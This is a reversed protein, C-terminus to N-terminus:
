PTFAPEGFQTVFIGTGTHTVGDTAICHYEIVFRRAGVNTKNVMIWYVGPGNQVTIFPSFDADGSVTDTISNAEDGKFIQLNVLLGPEPQSDDRIRAVLRDAPGNGDDFCNVRAMGTFSRINNGPDLTAGATDAHSVAAYALLCIAIFFSSSVTKLSQSQMM